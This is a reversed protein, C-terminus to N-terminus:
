KPSGLGRASWKVNGEEVLSSKGKARWVLTKPTGEEKREWEEEERKRREEEEKRLREEEKRKMREEEERKLREKEEKRLREEEEGDCNKGDM